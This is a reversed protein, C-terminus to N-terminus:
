NSTITNIIDDSELLKDARVWGRKTLFKHNATCKISIDNDFFLEIMEETSSNSLNEYKKVVVDEKLKKTKEDYNIIIEGIEIDKIKKNGNKTLIKTNGDFCEDCIVMDFQDFWSTHLNYISQWTSITIEKLEEKNEGAKIKKCQNGVFWDNDKISYVGFDSYLQEVLSVTPVIILTPKDYYRTIMYLILSKGSGTPSVIVNRSNRVCKAFSSVQYDHPKLQLNLKEIFKEAEHLSFPTEEDLYLSGHSYGRDRCFKYIFGKLGSYIKFDRINFLRIRGDWSGSKWAPMFKYGKVFFSFFDSLEMAISGVCHVKIWTSDLEELVVDANVDM